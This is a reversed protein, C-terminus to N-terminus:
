TNWFSNYKISLCRVVAKPFLNDIRTIGDPSKIAVSIGNASAWVFDSVHPDSEWSNEFDVMFLTGAARARYGHISSIVTYFHNAEKRGLGLSYHEHSM